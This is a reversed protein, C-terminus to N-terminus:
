GVVFFSICFLLPLVRHHFFIGGYYLIIHPFNYGFGLVFIYDARLPYLFYFMYHISANVFVPGYKNSMSERLLLSHVIFLSEGWYGLVGGNMCDDRNGSLHPPSYMLHVNLSCKDIPVNFLLYIHFLWPTKLNVVFLTM